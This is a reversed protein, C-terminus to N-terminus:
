DDRRGSPQGDTTAIEGTEIRAKLDRLASELRQAVSEGVYPSLKHETEKDDDGEGIEVHLDIGRDAPAKRFDPNGPLDAQQWASRVQEVDALIRVTRRAGDDRPVEITGSTEIEQESM